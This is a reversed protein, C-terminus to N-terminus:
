VDLEVLAPVERQGKEWALACASSCFRQVSGKPGCRTDLGKM